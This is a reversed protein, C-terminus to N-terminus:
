ALALAPRHPPDADVVDPVGALRLRDEASFPLLATSSLNVIGGGTRLRRAAEQVGYLSGLLNVGILEGILADDSDAVPAVRSTGANNVLADVPGFAEETRDVLAAV